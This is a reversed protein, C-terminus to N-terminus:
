AIGLCCYGALVLRLYDCGVAFLCGSFGFLLIVGVFCGDCCLVVGVYFM